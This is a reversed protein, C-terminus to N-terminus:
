SEDESQQFNATPFGWAVLLANIMEAVQHLNLDDNPHEITHRLFQNEFPQYRQDETPEITIRM